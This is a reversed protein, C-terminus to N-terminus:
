WGRHSKIGVRFSIGARKFSLQGWATINQDQVGLSRLLTSGITLYLLHIFTKMGSAPERSSSGPLKWNHPPLLPLPQERVLGLCPSASIFGLLGYWHWLPLLIPLPPTPFCSLTTDHFGLSSIVFYTTSMQTLHQQSFLTLVSLDIDPKACVPAIGRYLPSLVTTQLFPRSLARHSKM